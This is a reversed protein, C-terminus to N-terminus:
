EAERERKIAGKERVRVRARDKERKIAGKERKRMEDAQEIATAKAARAQRYCAPNLELPHCPFSRKSNPASIPHWSPPQRRRRRGNVCKM